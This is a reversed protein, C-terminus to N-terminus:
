EEEIVEVEAEGEAAAEADVDVEVGQEEAIVRIEEKEEDTLAELPIDIGDEEDDEDEDDAFIDSYDFLTVKTIEDKVIDPQDGAKKARAALQAPTYRPIAMRKIEVPEEEEEEISLM